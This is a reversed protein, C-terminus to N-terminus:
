LNNELFKYNLHKQIKESSIIKKDDNRNETNFKPIVLNLEIAKQTYYEKRSPHFPAVANFIESFCNTDIIKEIITICNDQHILNIPAYPNDNGALFTIPHRDKGILGGFRLITTKFNTNAQLIKEVELLQKGSEADPNPITEETVLENQEGYVSTSSVFLVKKVKEEEIFSILNQIKQVFNEKHEGRLKPPITIILIESNSLFSAIDGEIKRESLDILFPQIKELELIKLKGKSTTSGKVDFGVEVLKKALPLGLWGCGLISITM